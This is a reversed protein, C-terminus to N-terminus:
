NHFGVLIGGREGYFTCIGRTKRITIKANPFSALIKDKLIISEAENDCHDIYVTGGQYGKAKMQDIIDALAKKMGRTKNLLAFKGEEDVTGIVMIKLMGALRAAVMPLRGNLALNRLSKLVFVLDTHTMEENIRGELENFPVDEEALKEIIDVIVRNEPGVTKADLVLVNRDPYKELYLEKAQLAANYSGSLGSTLPLMVINEGTMRDLWDQINPCSSRGAEKTTAMTKLLENTDLSDDDIYTKDKFSIRLPTIVVDDTRDNSGSDLIIQIKM